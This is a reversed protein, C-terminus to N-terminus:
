VLSTLALAVTKGKDGQNVIKERSQQCHRLSISQLPTIDQVIDGVGSCVVTVMLHCQEGLYHGDANVM